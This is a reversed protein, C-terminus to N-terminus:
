KEITGGNEIVSLLNFFEDQEEISKLGKCDTLFAKTQLFYGPKFDTDLTYDIGEVESIAVSMRPQYQLKEMPCLIYRNAKTFFDLSWRGASNWNSAYSFLSSDTYGSGTFVASSKHWGLVNEGRSYANMKLAKGGIDFALDIVHSSNAPIWSAKVEKSLPLQGIDDAWETFSFNFSDIGGESRAREKLALVSQFFRRNYAIFVSSNGINPVLTKFERMSLAGPKELLVKSAGKACVAKAVEALNPIDVAVIVHTTHENIEDLNNSCKKRLKETVYEKTKESRCYVTYPVEMADLVKMYEQGIVGAGVIAVNM